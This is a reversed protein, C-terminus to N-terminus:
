KITERVEFEGQPPRVLPDDECAGFTTEFFDAPWKSDGAAAPTEIPNLIVVIEVETDSLDTPVSLKLTGDPGVHSKLHISRM